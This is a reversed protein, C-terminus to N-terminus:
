NSIDVFKIINRIVLDLAIRNVDTTISNVNGCTMNIEFQRLFRTPFYFFLIQWAKQKLPIGILLLYGNYYLQLERKSEKLM